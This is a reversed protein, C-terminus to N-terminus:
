RSPTIQILYSTDWFFRGTIYLTEGTYAAISMYNWSLLKKCTWTKKELSKKCSKGFAAGISPFSNKIVKWFVKLWLSGEAWFKELRNELTYGIDGLKKNAKLDIYCNRQPTIGSHLLRLGYIREAKCTWADPANNWSHHLSRVRTHWAWGVVTSCSGEHRM